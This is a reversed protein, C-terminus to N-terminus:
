DASLVEEAKELYGRAGSQGSEKPLQASVAHNLINLAQSPTDRREGWRQAARAARARVRESPYKILESLLKARDLEEGEPSPLGLVVAAAMSAERSNSQENLFHNLDAISVMRAGQILERDTNVRSRFHEIDDFERYNKVARKLVSQWQGNRVIPEVSRDQPFRKRLDSIESELEALRLENITEAERLKLQLGAISIEGGRKLIQGIMPWLLVLVAVGLLLTGSIMLHDSINWESVMGIIAIGLAILARTLTVLELAPTDDQPNPM